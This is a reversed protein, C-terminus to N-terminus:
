VGIKFYRWKEYLNDNLYRLNLCWKIKNLKYTIFGEVQNNEFNKIINIM